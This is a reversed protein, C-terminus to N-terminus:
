AAADEQPAENEVRRVIHAILSRSIQRHLEAAQSSNGALFDNLRQRHLVHVETDTIAVVRVGSRLRLLSWSEGFTAGDALEDVPTQSGSRYVAVNGDLVTFTGTPHEEYDVIVQGRRYM